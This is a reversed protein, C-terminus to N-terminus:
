VRAEAFVDLAAREMVQLDAFIEDGLGMRRLVVDVAVYDLGLWVVETVVQAMQGLTMPVARWQTECALFACVSQWNCPMVEFDESVTMPTDPVPAVEAGMEAFEARLDDDLAVPV